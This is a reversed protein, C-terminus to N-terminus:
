FWWAKVGPRRKYPATGWSSKWISPLGLLAVVILIITPTM